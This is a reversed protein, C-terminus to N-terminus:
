EHAVEIISKAFPIDCMPLYFILESVVNFTFGCVFSASRDSPCVFLGVFLCFTVKEMEFAGWLAILMKSGM